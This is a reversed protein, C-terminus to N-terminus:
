PQQQEKGLLGVNVPLTATAELMRAPEPAPTCTTGRATRRDYRRRVDDHDRELPRTSGSRAILPRTDVAGATAVLGERYLRPAAASSPNPDVGDQVLPNGARDIGVIL